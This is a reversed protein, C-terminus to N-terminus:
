GATLEFMKLALRGVCALLYIMVCATVACLAFGLVTWWNIKRTEFGIRRVPMIGESPPACRCENSLGGARERAAAAGLLM